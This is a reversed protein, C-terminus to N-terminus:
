EWGGLTVFKWNNEEKRYVSICKTTHVLYLYDTNNQIGEVVKIESYQEQKTEREEDRILEFAVRALYSEHDSIGRTDDFEKTIRLLKPLLAAEYGDRSKHISSLHMGEVFKIFNEAPINFRNHIIQARTGM